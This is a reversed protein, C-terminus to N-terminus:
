EKCLLSRKVCSLNFKKITKELFLEKTNHDVFRANLHRVSCVSLHIKKNIQEAKEKCKFGFIAITADCVRVNQM